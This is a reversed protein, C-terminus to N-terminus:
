VIEALEIEGDKREAELKVKAEAEAEADRRAIDRAFDEASTDDEVRANFRVKPPPIRACWVEICNRFVSGTNYPNASWSYADRFSEYTTQNTSVLYAHFCSLAGVFAFGFVAILFVTIAVGSREMAQGIGRGQRVREHIHLASTTTAFAAYCTSSTVFTLFARYNRLGITAGTWPCHHDFREICDNTVSCHHARPPQYYGCTDNWRVRALRGTSAVTVDKTKGRHSEGGAVARKLRPLIGPDTFATRFLWYVCFVPALASIVAIWLGYRARVLPAVWVNHAVAPLTILAATAFAARPRPGAVVAGNCFFTENGPWREHVYTPSPSAMPPAVTLSRAACRDM